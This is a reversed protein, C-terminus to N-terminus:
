SALDVWQDTRGTHGCNRHRSTHGLLSSSLSVRRVEKEHMGHSRIHCTNDTRCYCGTSEHRNETYLRTAASFKYSSNLHGLNLFFRNFYHLRNQTVRMLRQDCCSHCRFLHKRNNILHVFDAVVSHLAPSSSSKVSGQTEQFFVRPLSQAFQTIAKFICLQLHKKSSLINQSITGICVIHYLIKNLFRHCISNVNDTNKVTQIVQTIQLGSHSRCVFLISVSLHGQGVSQSIGISQLVPCLLCLLNLLHPRVGDTNFIHSAQQQRILSRLQYLGEFLRHLNGNIQM